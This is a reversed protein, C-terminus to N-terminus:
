ILEKKLDTELDSIKSVMQFGFKAGSVNYTAPITVTRSVWAGIGTAPLTALTNWSTGGNLSGVLTLSTSNQAYSYSFTVLVNTATTLNVAPSEIRRTNGTLCNGDYFWLVKSGQPPATPGGGYPACGSTSTGAFNVSTYSTGWTMQGWDHAGGACGVPVGTGVVRTQTWTDPANPGVATAAAASNGNLYWTGEFGETFYTQAKLANTGLLLLLIVTSALTRLVTLGRRKTITKTM